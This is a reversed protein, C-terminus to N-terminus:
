VEKNFYCFDCVKKYQKNNHKNLEQGCNLCKNIM